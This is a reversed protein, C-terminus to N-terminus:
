PFSIEIGLYVLASLSAACSLAVAWGCGGLERAIMGTLAVTVAGAV